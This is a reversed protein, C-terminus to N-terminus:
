SAAAGSGFPNHWLDEGAAGAASVQGLRKRRLAAARNLRIREEQEPALTTLERPWRINWASPEAPRTEEASRRRRQAEAKNNEIRQRQEATLEENQERPPTPSRARRRTAQACELLDDRSQPEM